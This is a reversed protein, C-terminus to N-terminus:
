ETYTIGTVTLAEVEAETPLDAPIFSDPLDDAYETTNAPVTDSGAADMAQIDSLDADAAFEYYKTGTFDLSGNAIQMLFYNGSGESVGYGVVNHDYGTGDRIVKLSFTHNETNGSIYAKVIEWGATEGTELDAPDLYNAFFLGIKVDGSVLDYRGQVVTKSLGDNENHGTHLIYVVDNEDVRAFTQTKNQDGESHDAGDYGYYTDYSTLAADGNFGVDVPADITQETIKTGGEDVQTFYEDAGRMVDYLNFYGDWGTEVDVLIGYLEYIPDGWDWATTARSSMSGSASATFTPAVKKVAQYFLDEALNKFEPVLSCSFFSFAGAAVLTVAIILLIFKKM